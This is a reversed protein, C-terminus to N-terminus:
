SDNFIQASINEDNYITHYLFSKSTKKRKRMHDMDGFIDFFLRDRQIYHM